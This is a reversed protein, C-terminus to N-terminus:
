RDLAVLADPTLDAVDTIGTLGLAVEMEDRIIDLVHGVGQEGRAAVAYAWPRGVLCAKAGLALLKVVDLGSRVGGDVLVDIQEGVADIVAPLAATTSLVDDLQRGGHNSVVIGDVGHDVARRADDPDLVGKLVVQGPWNSRVWALDDWTVSPDFQGDVWAKFGQPSRGGPVAKELNGFTLPKGKMAVDRLWTPHTALDLGRVLRQAPAVTGSMGNRADRYRAGVVPLDVTLVLVPCGVTQAREMLDEAYSRDRMVYLQYWFPATTAAAVEEMSCISVTSECFPVGVREAARAAQVEARRAFMGGLGVPALVVPLTVDHGLVTTALRRHSVDRLVRQRLGIRGLDRMNAAMTAEEYAGGDIYDFLQRPLRRRALERYDRVSAPALELSRDRRLLNVRGM